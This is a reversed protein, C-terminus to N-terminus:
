KVTSILTRDALCRRRKSRSMLSSPKVRNRNVIRANGDQLKIPKSPRLSALRSRSILSRIAIWLLMAFRFPSLCIGNPVLIVNEAIPSRISNALLAGILFRPFQNDLSTRKIVFPPPCHQFIGWIGRFLCQGFPAILVRLLDISSHLQKTGLAAVIDLRRQDLHLIFVPLQADSKNVLM